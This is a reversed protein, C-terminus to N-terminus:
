VRYFGTFGPLVWYFCPVALLVWYFGTFGPLVRYFTLFETFSPSPSRVPQPETKAPPKKGAKLRLNDFLESVSQV